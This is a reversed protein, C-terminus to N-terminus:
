VLPDIHSADMAFQLFAVASEPYLAGWSQWGRAGQEEQLGGSIGAVEPQRRTPGGRVSALLTQYYAGYKRVCACVYM